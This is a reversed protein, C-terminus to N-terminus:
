KKNIRQWESFIEKMNMTDVNKYDVAFEAFNKIDEDTWERKPLLGNLLIYEALTILRRELIKYESMDEEFGCQLGGYWIDKDKYEDKFMEHDGPTYTFHFFKNDIFVTKKILVINLNTFMENFSATEM